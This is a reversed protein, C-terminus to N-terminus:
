QRIVHESTESLIKLCHKLTEHTIDDTVTYTHQLAWWSRRAGRAGRSRLTNSSDLTWPYSFIWNSPPASPAPKKEAAAGNAEILAHRKREAKTNPSSCFHLAKFQDAVFHDIFNTFHKYDISHCVSLTHMLETQHVLDLHLWVNSVSSTSQAKVWTPLLQALKPKKETLVHVIIQLGQKFCSIYMRSLKYM